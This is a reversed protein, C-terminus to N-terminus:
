VEEGTLAIGLVDYANQITNFNEEKGNICDFFYEIEKLYYDENVFDKRFITKNGEYEMIEDKIFDIDIRKNNTFMQMKREDKQGIYDIHIELLMNEYQAIYVSIDDSDIELDSFHGRLNYVKQPQGFLYIAYDWEHILDRAVGGGLAKIASYNKRYDVNKRWNPLYSSSIIRCSIVEEQPLIEEKVYKMISKHRLPCAVYYINEKQLSLQELDCDCRDFVPKEIFMHKTKSIVNRIMDYHLYTPNTIFMIDYDDPLDEVAFYQCTVLEKIEEDMNKNGSRLADIQFIINKEKLLNSINKIHRKGISGLGIMCIKLIEVETKM